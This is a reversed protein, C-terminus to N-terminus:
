ARGMAVWDKDGSGNDIATDMMAAIAETVPLQRGGREAAELMLRVDKRAMELTWSPDALDAQTIRRIRAPVALGPNFSEFLACLDDNSVGMADALRLTDILGATMAVLFHNGLLKMAAARDPEGGLYLLTGTMPELKPKLEEFLEQEGSALMIGTAERASQPGMFVPAHLYGVGRKSWRRVRDRAGDASTTTHDVIVVGNAFGRSARELVDDVSADDSLTLHIREAGRAAEAPSEFAVAGAEELAQAKAHTRNWVQVQEGRERLARVFNAGLLGTGFFAIM